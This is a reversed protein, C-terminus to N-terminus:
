SRSAEDHTAVGRPNAQGWGDDSSRDHDPGAERCRRAHAPRDTAYQPGHGSSVVLGVVARRQRLAAVVHRHHEVPHGAAVVEGVIDERQALDPPPAVGRLPREIRARALQDEVQGGAGAGRAEGEGGGARRDDGGVQRQAHQLHALLAM